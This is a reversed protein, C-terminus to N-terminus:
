RGVREQCKLGASGLGPLLQLFSKLKLRSQWQNVKPRPSDSDEPGRNGTESIPIVAKPFNPDSDFGDSQM